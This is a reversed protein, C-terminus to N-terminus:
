RMWISRISPQNVVVNSDGTSNRSCQVSLWHTEGLAMRLVVDDISGDKRQQGMATYFSRLTFCLM